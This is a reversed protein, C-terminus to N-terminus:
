DKSCVIVPHFSLSGLGLGNLASRLWRPEWAHLVPPGYTNGIIRRIAFGQSRLMKTILPTIYIRDVPQLVIWGPKDLMDALVRVILWPLHLYNPFSLLLVGGPKLVREVEALVERPHILHEIVEALIVVGQSGAEFPLTQEINGTQIHELRSPAMAVAQASQEIGHLEDPPYLGSNLLM